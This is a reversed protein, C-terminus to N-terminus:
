EQPYFNELIQAAPDFDKLKMHRIDDKSLAAAPTLGIIESNKVRAGLRAAHTKIADFVARPPTVRWDTLNVSVQAAGRSELMLGLAKVRPLGGSSQRIRAAIARAASVDPTDLDVNFAILIERAGVATMGATPHPTTGFDPAWGPLVPNARRVDALNARRPASAANEYLYVPVGYREFIEGGARRATEACEDMDAGRLPIFPIVDVAGMRPHVGSHKTLDILKVAEGALEVAAREVAPPEGLFSIVTRNHDKDSSCGMLTVGPVARVADAAANIIKMDRGESINPVCEMLKM